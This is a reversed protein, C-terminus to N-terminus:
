VDTRYQSIRYSNDHADCIYTPNIKYQRDNKLGMITCRNEVVFGGSCRRAIYGSMFHNCEGCSHATGGKRYNLEIKKELGLSRM